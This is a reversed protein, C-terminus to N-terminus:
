QRALRRQGEGTSVRRDRGVQIMHAPDGMAPVKDLKGDGCSVFELGVPELTLSRHLCDKPRTQPPIHFTVSIHYQHAIGFSEDNPDAVGVGPELRKRHRPPRTLSSVIVSVVLTRHHYSSIM